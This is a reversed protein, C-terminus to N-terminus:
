PQKREFHRHSCHDIQMKIAAATVITSATGLCSIFLAQIRRVSQESQVSGISSAHQSCVPVPPQYYRAYHASDEKSHLYTYLTYNGSYSSKCLTYVSSPVLRHKNGSAHRRLCQLANNNTTHTCQLTARELARLASYM